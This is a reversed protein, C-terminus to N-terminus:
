WCRPDLSWLSRQRFIDYCNQEGLSRTLKRFSGVKTLTPAQYANM